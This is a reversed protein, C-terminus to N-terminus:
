CHSRVITSPSFVRLGNVRAIELVNEVGRTNVKIALEPNKEGIASLLSANHIITDIGNELVIRALSDYNLVDCYVFQVDNDTRPQSSPAMKIDSNVVANAGYTERLFPVLEMGIQGTGGTVLIRRGQDFIDFGGTYSSLQRKTSLQYVRRLM